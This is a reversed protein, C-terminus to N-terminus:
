FIRSAPSNWTTYLHGDEMYILSRIDEDDSDDQICYDFNTVAIGDLDNLVAGYSLQRIKRGRKLIEINMEQVMKEYQYENTNDHIWLTTKNNLGYNAITINRLSFQDIKYSKALGFIDNFSVREDILNTVNLTVRVTLGYKKAESVIPEVIKEFDTLKDISIAIIDLGALHLDRILTFSKALALGNTQLECPFEKFRKLIYKVYTMNLVPEGKGTISVSSVESMEALHKVKEINRDFLEDNHDMYGTMKSVCYPCNKDCGKYPISISLNNAKM